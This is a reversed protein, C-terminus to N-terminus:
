PNAVSDFGAADWGMNSSTTGRGRTGYLSVNSTQSPTVIIKNVVSTNNGFGSQWDSAVLDNLRNGLADKIYLTATWNGSEVNSITDTPQVGGSCFIDLEARTWGITYSRNPQTFIIAISGIESPTRYGGGVVAVCSVSQNIIAAEITGYGDESAGGEDDLMGACQTLGFLCLVGASLLLARM